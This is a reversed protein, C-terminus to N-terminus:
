IYNIKEIWFFDKPIELSFITFISNEKGEQISYLCDLPNSYVNIINHFFGEYNLFSNKIKTYAFSLKFNENNKYDKTLALGCINNKQNSFDTLPFTMRGYKWDESKKLWYGNPLYGIDLSEFSQIQMSNLFRQIYLHDFHKKTEDVIPDLINNKTQLNKLPLTYTKCSECQGFKFQKNIFFTPSNCKPCFLPSIQGYRYKSFIEYNNEIELIKKLNIKLLEM